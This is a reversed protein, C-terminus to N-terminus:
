VHARGIETATVPGVFSAQVVGTADVVLSVPVADIGYRDHIARDVGHELEQVAVADSELHRAKAWVGACAGCTASTFVAVLWPADPRAFDARDVQAPVAYGTRVPADTRQRRQVVAAVVLALAALALAILVREVPQAHRRGPPSPWGEAPHGPGRVTRACHGEMPSVGLSGTGCVSSSAPAGASM